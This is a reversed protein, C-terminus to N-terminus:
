GMVNQGKKLGKVERWGGGVLGIVWKSKHFGMEWFGEEAV